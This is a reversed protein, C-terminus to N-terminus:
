WNFLGTITGFNKSYPSTTTSFTIVNKPQELKPSNTWHSLMCRSKDLSDLNQGKKCLVAVLIKLKVNGIGAVWMLIVPVSSQPHAPLRLNTKLPFHMNISDKTNNPLKSRYLHTCLLTNGLRQMNNLISEDSFHKVHLSYVFM